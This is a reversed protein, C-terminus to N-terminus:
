SGVQSLFVSLRETDTEVVELVERAAEGQRQASSRLERYFVWLGARARERCRPGILPDDEDSHSEGRVIQFLLELTAIRVHSPSEELLAAVLVPVVFEAAEFLQGQVVVHNELAWYAEDADDATVALLMRRLASPTRTANGSAARLESWSHRGLELEWLTVADGSRGSCAENGASVVKFSIM